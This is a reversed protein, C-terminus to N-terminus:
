EEEEPPCNGCGLDFCRICDYSHGAWPHLTLRASMEQLDEHMQELDTPGKIKHGHITIGGHGHIIISM